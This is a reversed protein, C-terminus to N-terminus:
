VLMSASVGSAFAGFRPDAEGLTGVQQLLFLALDKLGPNKALSMFIESTRWDPESHVGWLAEYRALLDQKYAASLDHDAIQAAAKRLAAKLATRREPTALEGAEAREREFLVAVFPQTDALQARLVAAGQERLVDDPHDFHRAPSLLRDLALDGSRPALSPIITSFNARGM